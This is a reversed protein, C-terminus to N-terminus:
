LGPIKKIEGWCEQLDRRKLTMEGHTQSRKWEMGYNELFRGRNRKLQKERGRNKKKQCRAVDLRKQCQYGKWNKKSVEEKSQCRPGKQAKKSVGVGKTKKKCRDGETSEKFGIGKQTKKSM